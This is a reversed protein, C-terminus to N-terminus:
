KEQAQRTIEIRHKKGTSFDIETHFIRIRHIELQSDKSDARIESVVMKHLARYLPRLGTGEIAITCDGFTMSIATGETTIAGKSATHWAYCFDHTETVVNLMMPATRPIHYPRAESTEEQGSHLQFVTM